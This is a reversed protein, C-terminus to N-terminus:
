ERMTARRRDADEIADRVALRIVWYAVVLGVAWLALALVLFFVLEPAGSANMVTLM